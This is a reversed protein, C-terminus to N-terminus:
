CRDQLLRSSSNMWSTSALEGGSSYIDVGKPSFYYFLFVLFVVIATTKVWRARQTQNMWSAQVKELIGTQRNNGDYRAPKEHPDYHVHKTPLSVSTRRM